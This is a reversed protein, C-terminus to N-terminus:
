RRVFGGKKWGDQAEECAKPHRARPVKKSLGLRGFVKRMGGYSYAVGYRERVWRVGDWVTRIQGCTSAQKLAQLQQASLRSRVRHEGGQCHRLVEEIGGRRYWAIWDQVTRPHVGVLQAVQGITKGQRLLWLAHLRIRHRPTKAKLYMRKLTAEDEQWQLQLHRAM